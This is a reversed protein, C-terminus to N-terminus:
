GSEQILKTQLEPYMLFLNQAFMWRVDLVTVRASCLPMLQACLRDCWHVPGLSGGRVQSVAVKGRKNKRGGGATSTKYTGDAWHPCLRGLGFEGLLEWRQNGQSVALM